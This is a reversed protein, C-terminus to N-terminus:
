PSLRTRLQHEAEHLDMPIELGAQYRRQTEQLADLHLAPPDMAEEDPYLDNWLEDLARFKDERSMQHLPLLTDMASIHILFFPLAILATAV